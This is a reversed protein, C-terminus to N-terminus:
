GRAARQRLRYVVAAYAIGNILLVLVGLVIQIERTLGAPYVIPVLYYEVFGGAYGQEGALQRLSNEWPTLPCIWGAFEILAGWAVAPIHLWALKPIRWVAIAGFIVFLVFGLHVLFVIDALLKYIM